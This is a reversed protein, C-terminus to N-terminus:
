KKARSYVRYIFYILLVSISILTIIRGTRFSSPNYKFVLKGKEGELYVASVVINAKYFKLEKGNLTAKWGPFHAFKESLALWGREGDLSIYYENVSKQKLELEKKSTEPGFLNNIDEQAISNKGELINPLVNGGNNVYQQLAPIDNQAVSNSLLM